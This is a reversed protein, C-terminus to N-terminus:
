LRGEILDEEWSLLTAWSPREFHVGRGEEQEMGRLFFYYLGGFRREYDAEDRIGLMKVLALSYLRAQITYNREVYKRLLDERFSPLYDSKWDAFYYTDGVSFILDVFGKVFGREITYGGEPPAESLRPHSAEPLPYLFEMERLLKTAARVGPLLDGQRLPIPRSLGAYVLQQAHPLVDDAIGHRLAEQKVIEVVEPHAIFEELSAQAAEAPVRALVEHLFIGSGAGGPLTGAPLPERAQMDQTFEEPFIEEKSRSGRMRTYSTIEFGMRQERLAVKAEEDVEVDGLLEMPPSWAATGGEASEALRSAFADLDEIVFGHERNDLLHRLRRNLVGYTGSVNARTYVPLYLRAKARTLAVYLLRECEEREEREDAERVWRPLPKGVWSTRQGDKGHVRTTESGQFSRLGGAVFVVAAELGKSAHMTMLQVAERETELRQQNGDKGEPAERQEVAARLWDTLEDLTCSSAGARELLLESIHLLNTLSREGGELIARRVIGSEDLARAFLREYRRADADEKWSWLQAVQPATHPLEAADKLSEFPVCFFPSMWARLRRSRDSPRAIAELLDLWAFAEATQFLGDAKYFAVPIGAERLVEGFIKGEKTTRYLVYIDRYAIPSEKGEDGFRLLPREPDMIRRIEGAIRHALPWLDAASPKEIASEFVHIPAAEKGSADLLRLEKKGCRVAPEYRIAGSFLPAESEQEFIRNYGDILAETARYCHDLQVLVGGAAVVEQKAELYTEVDAGRFRYIAQKPDGILALRHEGGGEFFIRRFIEWQVEDTDQFEDILALKYKDRLLSVLAPGHEGLLSDRLEVLIDDFDLLGERRKREHLEKQLPPLFSQVVLAELSGAREEIQRLLPLLREFSPHREEMAELSGLLSQLWTRHIGSGESKLMEKWLIDFRELWGEVKSMKEVADQVHALRTGFKRLTMDPLLAEVADFHEKAAALVEAHFDKGTPFEAILRDPLERDVVPEVRSRASLVALLLERLGEISGGRQWRELLEAREGKAFHKRLCDQFVEDFLEEKSLLRESFLRQNAFAHESLIRHCFSHITSIPASDFERLARQLKLKAEEDLIWCREPDLDAGQGPPLALLKEILSRIRHRMEAAAKDTFTVVLIETISRDTRLVRDVVLHELTYTKGTGASAEIVAHRDPPIRALIAPKEYRPAQM